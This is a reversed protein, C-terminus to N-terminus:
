PLTRAAEADDVRQMRNLLDCLWRPVPAAFRVVEALSGARPAAASEREAVIFHRFRAREGLAWAAHRDDEHELLILHRYPRLVAELAA